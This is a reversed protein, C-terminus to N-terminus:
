GAAAPSTASVSPHRRGELDRTPPVRRGRRDRGSRRRGPRSGRRGRRRTRGRRGRPASGGAATVTRTSGASSRAAASGAAAPPRSSDRGAQWPATSQAVAVSRAPSRRRRRARGPWRRGAGPRGRAAAPKTTTAWRRSRWSPMSAAIPAVSCGGGVPSAPWRRWPRPRDGGDGAGDSPRAPRTAPRRRSSVAAPWRISRNSTGHHSIAAPMTSATTVAVAAAHHGARVTARERDGDGQRGPRGASGTCREAAPRRGGRTAPTAQRATPMSEAVVPGVRQQDDGAGHGDDHGDQEAARQGDPDSAAPRRCPQGDRDRRARRSRARWWAREPAASAAILRPRPMATAM